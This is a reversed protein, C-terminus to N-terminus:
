KKKKNFVRHSFSEGFKLEITLFAKRLRGFSIKLKLCFLACVVFELFLSYLYNIGM